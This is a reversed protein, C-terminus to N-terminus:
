GLLNENKTAARKFAQPVPVDVIQQGTHQPLCEQPVVNVEEVTQEPVQWVSPDVTQEFVGKSVSDQSTLQTVVEGIEGRIWPVPMAVLQEAVRDSIREQLIRQIEEGLKGQVQPAPVDVIQEVKGNQVQKDPILKVVEFIGEVVQSVLVGVIEEVIREQIREQPRWPIAELDFAVRAMKRAEDPDQLVESQCVSFHLMLSLRTPRTGVMVKETVKASEYAVRGPERCGWHWVRCPTPLQRGEDEFVFEKSERTSALPILDKDMLALVGDHIVQLEAKM